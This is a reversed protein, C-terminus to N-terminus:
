FKGNIDVQLVDVSLPPGAVEDASLWRVGVSFNRSLALSGFLTYGKLNTGGLGFDSDTLADLVADSEVHRYSVGVAWDGFKEFVPKGIRLAVYWGKDGGIFDPLGADLDDDDIAGRNNVAVASVDNQDFALNQVWEGIVSIQLPEWRNYDLRGTIALERFPTALGFYQFQNSTGFDNEITPIINRIPFYTNGKQAFSPRTDDTDSADDESLPVFPSSLRGEVDEFHYYAVAVKFNIDKTIKWDIGFQAGYMWKDRSEFKNIQNDPFNFSTNFLPFAGGVIFPKFGRWIEYKAQLAFGDFGVDEDYIMETTFFPNDFKGAVISIERDYGPTTELSVVGKADRVERVRAEGGLSLQYKLFARDLWLEYKSFNGGEAGLTQNPSVPSDSEGTVLRIGASFGNELDAELGIRARLRFRTRDQDVNYLPPFETGTVDFPDGRNIANFNPFNGADANGGFGDGDSGPFFVGEYRVRVDGFLRIKKVWSPIIKPQAWNEERAQSMVEAKIQERMEAKVAEPIYTVRMDDESALGSFEAGMTAVENAQQAAQTAMAAAREAVNQAQEASERAEAADAQAQRILENAEDESLLQKEVMRRILNITVSESPKPRQGSSTLSPGDPASAGEPTAVDTTNQAILPSSIIEEEIAIALGPPTARMPLENAALERGAYLSPAFSVAAALSLALITFDARAALPM